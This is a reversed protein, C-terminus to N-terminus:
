LEDIHRLVVVVVGTVIAMLGLVFPVGWEATLPPWTHTFNMGYFGTIVAFFGFALTIVTLRNVVRNLRNSVSSMYLDIVSTLTDRFTGVLDAIRFLHDSVDRMYYQAANKDAFALMHPQSLASLIDREPWVVRWLHLLMRKLTFVRALSEQKPQSLILDELSNIEEEVMDVIPFYGDVVEDLLVYLVYSVTIQPLAATRSLRARASDIIAEKGNHATVVYNRGIFIDLERFDLDEGDATLSVPNVILFLYGPYEEIKPRQEHNRTDEIALPHFHFVERMVRADEATPDGMNVWIVGDHEAALLAPLDDLTKTELGEKTLLLIEMPM